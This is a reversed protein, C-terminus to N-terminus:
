GMIPYDLLFLVASLLGTTIAVSLLTPAIGQRDLERALIGTVLLGIVQPMSGHLLSSLGLSVVLLLAFRRRGYLILWRSLLHCVGVSALAVLITILISNPSHLSLALYGCVVLGASLGTLETYILSILIGLILIQEYM